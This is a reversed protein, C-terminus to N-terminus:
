KKDPLAQKFIIPIMMHTSRPKGQQMSPKFKTLLKIVRMAEKDLDPSVGKKISVKTVNGSTDVVFGVVVKGQINNEMAYQPYKLNHQIFNMLASDGGPYQPAAFCPFYCNATDQASITYTFSILLFILLPKMFILHM